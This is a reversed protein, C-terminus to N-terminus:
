TDDNSSGGRGGADICTRVAYSLLQSLSRRNPTHRQNLDLGTRLLGGTWTIPPSEM